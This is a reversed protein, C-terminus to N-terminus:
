HSVSFLAMHLLLLDARTGPCGDRLLLYPLNVKSMIHMYLASYAARRAGPPLDFQSM